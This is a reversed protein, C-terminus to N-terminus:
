QKKPKKALNNIKAIIEETGVNWFVVEHKKVELGNKEEIVIGKRFLLDPFRKESLQTINAIPIEVASSILASSYPEFVIKTGYLVFNGSTRVGM